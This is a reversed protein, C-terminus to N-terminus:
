LLYQVVRLKLCNASNAALDSRMEVLHVSKMIEWQDLDLGLHIQRISESLQLSSQCVNKCSLNM